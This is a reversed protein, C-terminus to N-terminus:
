DATDPQIKAFIEYMENQQPRKRKELATYAHPGSVNKKVWMCIRIGDKGNSVSLQALESM